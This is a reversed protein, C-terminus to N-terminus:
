LNARWLLVPSEKNSLAGEVAPPVVWVDFPTGTGNLLLGPLDSIDEVVEVTTDDVIRSVTLVRGAPVLISNVGNPYSTGQIMVKAGVPALQSLPSASGLVPSIPRNTIQHGGFYGVTVRWPVPLRRDPVLGTPVNFPMQYAPPLSSDVVSMDQESFVQGRRQKCVVVAYRFTGNALRRYFGYWILRNPAEQLAEDGIPTITHDSLQDLGFPFTQRQSFLPISPYDVTPLFGFINGHNTAANFGSILNAYLSTTPPFTYPQPMVDWAPAGVKISMTPLMYWPSDTGALVSAPVYLLNKNIRAELLAEAKSVLELAAAQDTSSQHQSLAVPFVAAVMILGVGLIAVAISTELLSFARRATRM